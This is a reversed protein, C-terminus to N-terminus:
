FRAAGQEVSLGEHVIARLGDLIAAPRDARFVRRDFMMGAAGAATSDHALRLTSWADDGGPGAAVLVPAHCREVVAGFDEVSGNWVV